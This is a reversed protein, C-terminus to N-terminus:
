EMKGYEHHYEETENHQHKEKKRNFRNREWRKAGRGLVIPSHPTLKSLSAPLDFPFANNQTTFDFRPKLRQLYLPDIRTNTMPLATLGLNRNNPLSGISLLDKLGNNLNLASGPSITEKLIGTLDLRSKQNARGKHKHIRRRGEGTVQDPHVHSHRSKPVLSVANPSMKLLFRREGNQAKDWVISAPRERRSLAFMRRISQDGSERHISSYDEMESEHAEYPITSSETPHIKYRRQQITRKTPRDFGVETDTKDHRLGLNTKKFSPVEAPVIAAVSPISHTPHISDDLRRTKPLAVNKDKLKLSKM